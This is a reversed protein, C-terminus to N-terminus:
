GACCAAQSASLPWTLSAPILRATLTTGAVFHQSIQVFTGKPAEEHAGRGSPVMASEWAYRAPADQFSLWKESGSNSLARDSASAVMSTGVRLALICFTSVIRRSAATTILGIPRGPNM